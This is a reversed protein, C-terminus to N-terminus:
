RPCSCPYATAACTAVISLPDDLEDAVHDMFQRSSYAGPPLRDAV